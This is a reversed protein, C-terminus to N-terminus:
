GEGITKALDDREAQIADAFAHLRLAIPDDQNSITNANHRYVGVTRDFNELMDDAHIWIGDTLRMGRIETEKFRRKM